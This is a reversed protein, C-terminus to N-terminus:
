RGRRSNDVPQAEEHVALYTQDVLFEELFLLHYTHHIACADSMNLRKHHRTERRPAVPASQALINVVENGALLRTCWINRDVM